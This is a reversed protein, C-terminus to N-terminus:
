VLRIEFAANRYIEWPSLNSDLCPIQNTTLILRALKEQGNLVPSSWTLNSIRKTVLPVSTVKVVWTLHNNTNSRGRQGAPPRAQIQTSQRGFCGTVPGDM